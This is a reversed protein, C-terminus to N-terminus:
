ILSAALNISLALISTNFLFSLVCHVTGLRRMSKSTFSVDATQASTGIIFSFYLFDLYDPEDEADNQESRSRESDADDEGPPTPFVLGGHGAPGSQRLYFNHAYHMAFMTHTFAWSSLVTLGALAIHATKEAPNLDKVLGLEVVIAAVSAVAAVVVFLLVGWEGEDEMKARSVMKDKSSSAFMFGALTLFLCTGTNWGILFRTVTMGSIHRPLFLVVFVAAIVSVILRPHTRFPAILQATFRRILPTDPM